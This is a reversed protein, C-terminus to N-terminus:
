NPFSLSGFNPAMGAFLLSAFRLLFFPVSSVFASRLCGRAVFFCLLRALLRDASARLRSPLLHSSPWMPLAADSPVGGLELRGSDGNIIRRERATIYRMEAREREKKKERERELNSVRGERGAAKM